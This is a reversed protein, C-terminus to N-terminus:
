RRLTSIAKIDLTGFKRRVQVVLALAVVAVVTDTVIVTLALSQAEDIKGNLRGSLIFALMAAKVALQLGVVIKMLNRSVLMGYIAIGVLGVTVVVVVNILNFIM